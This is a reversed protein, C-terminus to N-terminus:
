RLGAWTRLQEDTVRGLVAPEALIQVPASELYSHKAHLRVIAYGVPMEGLWRWERLQQGIMNSWNLLSFVRKRDAEAYTRHIIVTSTNSTVAEPIDGPNQVVDILIAGLARIRRHMSEYLATRTSASFADEDEGQTGFLEHAEELVVALGVSRGDHNFCGEGRHLGTRYVALLLSGLIFRRNALDLGDTEIVTVLGRDPDVL